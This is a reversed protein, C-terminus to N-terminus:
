DHHKSTLVAYRAGAAKFLEAWRDPDYNAATFTKAQAMYEDYPMEGNHFAWSESGKGESYIGWHIFIGLRAESFWTMDPRDTIVPAAPEAASISAGLILAFLPVPCKM